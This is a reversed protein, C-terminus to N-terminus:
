HYFAPGLARPARQRERLSSGRKEREARHTRPEARTERERGKKRTREGALKTAFTPEPGCPTEVEEALRPEEGAEQDQRAEVSLVPVTGASPSEGVVEGGAAAAAAAATAAAVAAPGSPM